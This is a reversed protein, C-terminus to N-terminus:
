VLFQICYSATQIIYIIIIYPCNTMSKLRDVLYCLLCPFPGLRFHLCAGRHATRLPADVCKILGNLIATKLLLKSWFQRFCTNKFFVLFDGCCRSNKGQVGLPWPSPGWVRANNSEGVATAKMSHMELMSCARNSQFIVSTVCLLHRQKTKKHRNKV